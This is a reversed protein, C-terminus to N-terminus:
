TRKILYLTLLTTQAACVHTCKMFITVTYVSFECNNVRLACVVFLQISKHDTSINKLRKSLCHLDLDFQEKLLLRIQSWM